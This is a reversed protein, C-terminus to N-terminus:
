SCCLIEDWRTTYRPSLLTPIPRWRNAPNLAGFYLTDRGYRENVKDIAAMIDDKWVTQQIFRLSQQQQTQLELQHLMIGAKKYLYGPKYIQDYAKMAAAFLVATNNSGELLFITEFGQYYTERDFRNTTIFVSIAGAVQQDRRLKEAGRAMFFSIAQKVDEYSSLPESFSRSVVRSQKPPTEEELAHCAIGQLEQQTRLGTVAMHKRVWLSSLKTFQYADQIGHAKLRQAHKRGIGWVEEIPLYKLFVSPDSFNCLDLVGKYGPVTKAFHNAVKALTKSPGFGISVPLGLCQKLLAAIKFPATL